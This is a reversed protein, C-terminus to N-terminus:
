INGVAWKRYFWRYTSKINTLGHLNGNLEQWFGSPIVPLNQQQMVM